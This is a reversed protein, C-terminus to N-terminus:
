VRIVKGEHMSRKAAEILEVTKVGITGSNRTETAPDSFSKVFHVLEDRITNNPHIPLDKTYGSEYITIKQAVADILASKSEGAIFIQRTKKPVLWSINSMAIM